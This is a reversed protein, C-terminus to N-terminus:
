VIPGDLGTEKTNSDALADFPAKSHLEFTMGVEHSLRAAREVPVPLGVSISM